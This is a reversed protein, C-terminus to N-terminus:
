TSNTNRESFSESAKNLTLEAVDGVACFSIEGAGKIIINALQSKEWDQPNGNPHSSSPLPPSNTPAVCVEDSGSMSDRRASSTKGSVRESCSHQLMMLSVRSTNEVLRGECSGEFEKAGEAFGDVAAEAM